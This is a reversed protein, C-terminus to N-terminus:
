QLKGQVPRAKTRQLLVANEACGRLIGKGAKLLGLTQRRVPDRAAACVSRKQGPVGAKRYM